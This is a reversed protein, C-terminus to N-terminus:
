LTTNLPHDSAGRPDRLREFFEALLNQLSWNDDMQIWRMGARPHDTATLVATVRGSEKLLYMKANATLDVWGYACDGRFRAVTIRECHRAYAFLSHNAPDVYVGPFRFDFAEDVRPECDSVYPLNSFTIRATFVHNTPGVGLQHWIMEGYAFTCAHDPSTIAIQGGFASSISGVAMAVLGAVKMGRILCCSGCSNLLIVRMKLPCVPM